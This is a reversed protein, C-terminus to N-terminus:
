LNLIYHYCFKFKLNTQNIELSSENILIYIFDIGSFVHNGTKVIKRM